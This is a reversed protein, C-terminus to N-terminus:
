SFKYGKKKRSLDGEEVLCLYVFYWIKWIINFAKKASYQLYQLNKDNKSLKDGNQDCLKLSLFQYCKNLDRLRFFVKTFSFNILCHHIIYLHNDLWQGYLSTVGTFFVPAFHQNNTVNIEINRPYQWFPHSM